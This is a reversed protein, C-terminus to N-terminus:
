TLIFVRCKKWSPPDEYVVSFKKTAGPAISDVVLSKAGGDIITGSSKQLHTWIVIDRAARETPNHIYGAVIANGFDDDSCIPNQIDLKSYDFPEEIAANTTTTLSTSTISSSTTSTIPSSSSTTTMLSDQPATSAPILASTTSVTTQRAMSSTTRITSPAADDDTLARGDDDFRPDNCCCICGACLLVLGLALVARM